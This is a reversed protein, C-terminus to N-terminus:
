ERVRNCPTEDHRGELWRSGDERTLSVGLVTQVQQLDLFAATMPDNCLLSFVANRVHRNTGNQAEIRADSTSRLNIRISKDLVEVDKVIFRPSLDKQAARQSIKAGITPLQAYFSAKVTEQDDKWDQFYGHRMLNESARASPARTSYVDGVRALDAARVILDDEVREFIMLDALNTSEDLIIMCIAYSTGQQAIQKLWIAAEAACREPARDIPQQNRAPAVYGIVAAIPEGEGRSVVRCVRNDRLLTQLGRDFTLSLGHDMGFCSLYEIGSRQRSDFLQQPSLEQSVEHISLGGAFAAPYDIPFTAVPTQAAEPQGNQMDDSAFTVSGQFGTESNFTWDASVTVSKSGATDSSPGTEPSAAEGPFFADKQLLIEVSVMLLICLVLGSLVGTIFRM